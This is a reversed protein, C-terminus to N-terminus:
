LLKKNLKQVSRIRKPKEAQRNKYLEVYKKELKKEKKADFSERYSVPILISQATNMQHYLDNIAKQQRKCVLAYLIDHDAKRDENIEIFEVVKEPDIQDPLYVNDHDDHWRTFISLARCSLVQNVNGPLAHKIDDEMFTAAGEKVKAVCSDKDILFELINIDDRKSDM